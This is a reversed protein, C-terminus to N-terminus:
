WGRRESSGGPEPRRSLSSVPPDDPYSPPLSGSAPGPYRLDDPSLHLRLVRKGEREEPDSPAVAGLSVRTQSGGNGGVRAERRVLGKRELHTLRRWLRAPTPPGLGAEPCLRSLRSRLLPLPVPDTTSLSALAELLLADFRRAEYVRPVEHPLPEFHRPELCPSGERRARAAAQEILEEVRSVGLEDALLLDRLKPPAERSYPRAASRALHELAIRGVEPRTFPAVELVDPLGPLERWPGRPGEGALLLAYPPLGSRGEPLIREPELLPTLVRPLDRWAGRRDDFWLVFPEGVTRMRRLWLLALQETSAGRGNFGPDQQQFLTTLTGHSTRQASLDVRLIRPRASAFRSTLGRALESAAQAALYSTGSGRPGLLALVRPPERTARRAWAGVRELLEPRVPASPFSPPRLEGSPLPAYM